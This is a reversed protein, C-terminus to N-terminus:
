TFNYIHLPSLILIQTLLPKYILTNLYHIINQIKEDQISVIM